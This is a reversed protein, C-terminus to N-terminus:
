IGHARVEWAVYHLAGTLWTTLKKLTEPQSQHPGPTTAGDWHRNMWNAHAALHVNLLWSCDHLLGPSTEASAANPDFVEVAQDVIHPATLVDLSRLYDESGVLAARDIHWHPHGAHQGDFQEVGDTDTKPAVWELRLLQAVEEDSRGVYLRLGCSDFDLKRRPRPTWFEHLGLWYRESSAGTALAIVQEQPGLDSRVITTADRPVSFASVGVAVPSSDPHSRVVIPTRARIGCVRLLTRSLDGMHRQLNDSDIQLV